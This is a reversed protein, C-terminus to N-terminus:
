AKLILRHFGGWVAPERRVAYEVRHGGDSQARIPSQKRAVSVLVSDSLRPPLLPRRENCLKVPGRAPAVRLDEFLMCKRQIKGSGLYGYGRPQHDFLARQVFAVAEAKCHERPAAATRGLQFVRFCEFPYSTKDAAHMRDAGSACKATSRRQVDFAVAGLRARPQEFAPQNRGIHQLRPGAYRRERKVAHAASDISRAVHLRYAQVAVAM